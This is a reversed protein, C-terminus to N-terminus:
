RSEARGDNSCNSVSIQKSRPLTTALASQAVNVDGGGAVARPTPSTVSTGSRRDLAV